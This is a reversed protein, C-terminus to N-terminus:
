CTCTKTGQMRMPTYLSFAQCLLLYGPVIVVLLIMYEEFRKSHVASSAFPGLFRLLWACFYSFTVIFIDIIMQLRGFQKENDKIM